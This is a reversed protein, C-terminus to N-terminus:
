CARGDAEPAAGSVVVDLSPAQVPIMPAGGEDAASVATVILRSARRMLSSSTLRAYACSASMGVSCPGPRVLTPHVSLTMTRSQRGIPPPSSVSADFMFLLTISLALLLEHHHALVAIL